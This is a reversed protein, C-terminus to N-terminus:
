DHRTKTLNGEVVEFCMGSECGRGGDELSEDLLCLALSSMKPLGHPRRCGRRTRGRRVGRGVYRLCVGDETAGAAVFLVDEHYRVGSTKTWLEQV